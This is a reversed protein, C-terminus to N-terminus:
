SIYPSIGDQELRRAAAPISAQVKRLAYVLDDIREGAMAEDLHVGYADFVARAKPNAAIEKVAAVIVSTGERLRAEPASSKWVRWVSFGARVGPIRLPTPSDTSMDLDTAIVQTDDPNEIKKKAQAPQQRWPDFIGHKPSM